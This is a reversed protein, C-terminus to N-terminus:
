LSGNNDSMIIITMADMVPRVFASYFLIPIALIMTVTHRTCTCVIGNDQANPNASEATDSMAFSVSGAQANRASGLCKM